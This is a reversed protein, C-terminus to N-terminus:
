RVASHASFASLPPNGCIFSNAMPPLTGYETAGSVVVISRVRIASILPVVLASSRMMNM